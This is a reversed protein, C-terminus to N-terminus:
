LRLTTADVPGIEPDRALHESLLTPGFDLYLDRSAKELAATRLAEPLRRNSPRGRLGHIVVGGREEEQAREYRRVVRRMHRLGVGYKRAGAEMTQLGEAVQRVAVLRDRETQSLLVPQGLFHPDLPDGRNFCRVLEQFVEPDGEPILAEGDLRRIRLVAM